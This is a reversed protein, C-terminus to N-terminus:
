IKNMNIDFYGNKREYMVKIVNTFLKITLMIKSSAKKQVRRCIVWGTHMIHYLFVM